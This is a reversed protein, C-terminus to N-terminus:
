ISIAKNGRRLRFTARVKLEAGTTAATTLDLNVKNGSKLSFMCDVFRKNPDSGDAKGTVLAGVAVNDFIQGKQNRVGILYNSSLGGAGQEEFAIGDCYDYTNDLQEDETFLGAATANPVTVTLTKYITELIEM